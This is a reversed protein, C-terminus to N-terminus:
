VVAIKEYQACVCLYDKFEPIKFDGGTTRNKQPTLNLAALKKYDTKKIELNKDCLRGTTDDHFTVFYGDRTVHVDTEIGVYSRNGAAVFASTTNELELGSLGRHAIFKTGKKNQIKITNYM